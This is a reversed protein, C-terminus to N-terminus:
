ARRRAGLGAGLGLLGLGLATVFLPGTAPASAAPTIGHGVMAVTQPSNFPDNTAINLTAQRTGLATPAFSVTVYTTVSPALDPPPNPTTIQFDGANTGTITLASAFHLTSSDHATNTIMVNLTGHQGIHVSGFDAPPGNDPTVTSIPAAIATRPWAFAAM